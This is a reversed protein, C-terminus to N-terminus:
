MVVCKDRDGGSSAVAAAHAAEAHRILADLNPFEARCQPCVEKGAQNSSAASATPQRAPQRAGPDPHARNVHAVLQTVYQFRQQCIPCAESSTTVADKAKAKAPAPASSKKAPVSPKSATTSGFLSPTRWQQRQRARADACAHDGEFRHRLCVDQHCKGCTVTNSALLVERCGAAACRKKKPKKPKNSEKQCQGSAVHAEWVANVDQEATWRVTAQCLPCQLVRRDKVGARPCEHADYSRHDLCFVGACCDCSFPLFDVQRCAPMSCHAGVDM